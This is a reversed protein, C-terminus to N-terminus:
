NGDRGVLDGREPDQQVVHRVLRLRQVEHGPTEGARAIAVVRHHPQPSGYLILRIVESKGGVAQQPVEM